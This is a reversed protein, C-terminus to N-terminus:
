HNKNLSPADSKRRLRSFIVFGAGSAEIQSLVCGDGPAFSNPLVVTCRFTAGDSVQTAGDSVQPLEEFSKCESVSHVLPGGLKIPRTSAHNNLTHHWKIGTAHHEQIYDQIASVLEARDSVRSLQPADHAAGCGLM